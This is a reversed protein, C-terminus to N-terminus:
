SRSKPELNGIPSWHVLLDSAPQGLAWVAKHDVAMWDNADAHAIGQPISELDMLALGSLFAELQNAIHAEVNCDDVEAPLLAEIL